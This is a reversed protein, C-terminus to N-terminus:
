WMVCGGDVMLAQGTIYRADESALFVAANGIDEPTQECKMPVIDAVRKEFVQRASMGAFAPNTTAIHTALKQWFDTWLVGPCIANVTIRHPALEKAVIRTFTIVGQKAVSYPPMTLASLPGAISAINIIRGAKREIFYPAVAKSTLFVSKTNVAFTRDWDEETNNTFPLGPPSAMGANNVLIDVKGLGERTRDVMAKVDASSTVDTKLAFAKRGLGKVEDVVKEANLVQIDPIAIDAGERAMALVIGRGIGSGGGTVIAVKGTLRM